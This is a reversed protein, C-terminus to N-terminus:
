LIGGLLPFLIIFGRIGISHFTVKTVPHKRGFRSCIPMNTISYALLGSTYSLFWLFLIWRLKGATFAIRTRKGSSLPQSAMDPVNITCRAKIRLKHRSTSMGLRKQKMMQKMTEERREDLSQIGWANINRKQAEFDGSFLYNLAIKKKPVFM